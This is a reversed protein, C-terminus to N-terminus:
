GGIPYKMPIYNKMKKFGCSSYFCDQNPESVLGIWLIRHSICVNLLFNVLMRGLGKKRYEPLIVVDQIYADSVGDSLIRGMGIAKGEPNKVVVAFAYSGKILSNINKSDYSNKWWGASKYLNVIEEEIWEKVLKIKVDINEM